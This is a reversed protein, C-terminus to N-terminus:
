SKQFLFFFGRYTKLGIEMAKPSPTDISIPVSLKDQLLPILWELTEKEKELLASTNLDIFDAGNEEQQLAEELLFDSDKDELARLVPKRSSNLREGVIIV